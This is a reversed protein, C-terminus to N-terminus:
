AHSPMGYTGNPQSLGPKFASDRDTLWFTGTLREALWSLGVGPADAGKSLIKETIFLMHNPLLLLIHFGKDGTVNSVIEATTKALFYFRSLSTSSLM